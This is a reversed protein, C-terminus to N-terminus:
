SFSAIGWLFLAILDVLDVTKRKNLKHFYVFRFHLNKGYSHINMKFVTTIRKLRKKIEVEQEGAVFGVESVGAFEM